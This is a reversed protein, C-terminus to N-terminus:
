DERKIIKIKLAKRFGEVVLTEPLNQTAYQRDLDIWLNVYTGAKVRVTTTYNEEKLLLFSIEGDNNSYRIQVSDSFGEVASPDLVFTVQCYYDHGFAEKNKVPKEKFKVKFVKVLLWRFFKLIYRNGVLFDGIVYIGVFYLVVVVAAKKDASGKPAVSYSSKVYNESKARFERDLQECKDSQYDRNYEVLFDNVDAFFAQQFTLNLEGTSPIEAFTNGNKDVVTIKAVSQVTDIDLDIYFFGNSTLTNIRDAKGDGDTDQNLVAVNHANGNVDTVVVKALSDNGDVEYIDKLGYVFGAYSKHMQGDAVEEGEANQGETLTAAEFLVIGGGDPLDQQFVPQKNFYGGVLVMAEWYNGSELSQQMSNLSEGSYFYYFPLFLALLIGMSITFLYYVIKAFLKAKKM